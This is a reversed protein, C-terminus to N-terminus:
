PQQPCSGAPGEARGTPEGRMRSSALTEAEGRSLGVQEAAALIKLHRIYAPIMGVGHSDHGALNANVLHSMVLDAEAPESGGRCFIEGGLKQLADHRFRRNSTV